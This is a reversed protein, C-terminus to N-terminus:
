IKKSIFKVLATPNPNPNIIMVNPGQYQQNISNKILKQTFSNLISGVINSNCVTSFGLIKTLQMIHTM